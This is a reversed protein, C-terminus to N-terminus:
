SFVALQGMFLQRARRLWQMLLPEDGHKFRIYALEGIGAMIADEPLFLDVLFIKEVSQFQEQERYVALSGGAAAGLAQNPLHHSGGPHQRTVWSPIVKNIHSAVRIEATQARSEILGIDKQDVAARIIRSQPGYIYGLLVGREVYQGILAAADPLVFQGAMQARVDLAQKQQELLALQTEVTALNMRAIDSVLRRNMSQAAIELTLERQRATLKKLQADIRDHSLQLLLQGAEVQGGPQAVIREVFGSADSHIEAEPSVWVVGESHTHLEAPTLYLLIFGGLLASGLIGLGRNRQGALREGRLVFMLGSWFPLCLQTLLAWGALLVGLVPFSNLLYAVIVWLLLLRNILALLGYVAFWGTEGPASVPSYPQPIGLLYRQILYLYYRSSRSYLNPIELWDQLVYYGDFKLFPNGNFLLSSVAGIMFLNLALDHVIGPASLLWVCLALAAIFLEAIMGALGVLMRKRKDQFQWASSTDTYPIPVLVLLAIGMEKVKGGFARVAIGHALEHVLKMLIFLVTLLLINTPAVIDSGIENAIADSHMVGLLAGTGTMLCWLLMWSSLNGPFRACLRRIFADPNVLPIKVSLPNFRQLLRPKSPALQRLLRCANAPLQDQLMGANFLQALLKIVADRSPLLQPTTQEIGTLIEAVTLGDLRAILAHAAPNLRFFRGQQADSIIYWRQKRFSQSYVRVRPQLRPKLAAVIPWPSVNPNPM